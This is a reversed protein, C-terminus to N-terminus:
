FSHMLRKMFRVMLDQYTVINIYNSKKGNDMLRIKISDIKYYKMDICWIQDLRLTCFPLKLPYHRM